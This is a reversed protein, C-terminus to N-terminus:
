IAIKRITDFLAAFETLDAYKRQWARLESLAQQLVQARLVPDSMAVTVSTYTEKNDERISVFARVPRADPMDDRVYVIVRLLYGAQELRWKEAAVTDDWDFQDHLPSDKDRAAEVVVAPNLRGEHQKRLKELAEGAVQPDIKLGFAKAVKDYKVRAKKM